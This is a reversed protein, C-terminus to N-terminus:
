RPSLWECVKAIGYALAYFLLTWFLLHGVRIWPSRPTEPLEQSGDRSVPPAPPADRTV